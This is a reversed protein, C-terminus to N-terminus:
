PKPESKAKLHLVAKAHQDFARAIAAATLAAVRNGWATMDGAEDRFTQARQRAMEAVEDLLKDRSGDDMKPDSM